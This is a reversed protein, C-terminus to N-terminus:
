PPSVLSMAEPARTLTLSLYVIVLVLVGVTIGIRRFRWQVEPIAPDPGNASLRWIRSGLSGYQYIALALVIVVLVLKLIMAPTIMGFALLNFIGTVVLVALATLVIRGLRRIVQRAVKLRLAPELEQALIPTLVFVSFLSGGLAVIVAAVHIFLNLLRLNFM